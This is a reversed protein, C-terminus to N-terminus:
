VATPVINPIVSLKSNISAVSVVAGTYSFKATYGGTGADSVVQALMAFTDQRYVRVTASVYAGADYTSGEVKHTGSTGDPPTFAPAPLAPGLYVDVISGAGVVDTPNFMLLHVEGTNVVPLSFRGNAVAGQVLFEGTDARLAVATGATHDKYGGELTSPRTVSGGAVENLRALESVPLERDYMAFETVMGYHRKGGNAGVGTGVTDYSAHTYLLAGSLDLKFDIATNVGSAVIVNDIYVTVDGSASRTIVLPFHQGRPIKHAPITIDKTADHVDIRIVLDKNEKFNMIVGGGANAPKFKFVFDNELAVTSGAWATTTFPVSVGDTDMAVYAFLTFAGTTVGMASCNTIKYKVNTAGGFAPIGLRANSHISPTSGVQSITSTTYPVTGTGQRIKMKADAPVTSTDVHSLTNTTKYEWLLPDSLTVDPYAAVEKRHLVTRAKVLAPLTAQVVSVEKRLSEDVFVKINILDNAPDHAVRMRVTKASGVGLAETLASSSIVTHTGGNVVSVELESGDTRHSRLVCRVLVDSGVQVDNTASTTYSASPNLLLGVYFLHQPDIANGAPQMARDCVGVSVMTELINSTVTEIDGVKLLDGTAAVAGSSNLLSQYTPIAVTEAVGAGDNDSYGCHWTPTSQSLYTTLGVGTYNVPNLAQQIDKMTQKTVTLATASSLGESLYATVILGGRWNVLSILRSGEESTWGTVLGANTVSSYFNASSVDGGIFSSGSVTTVGQAATCLIADASAALGNHPYSTNINGVRMPYAEPKVGSPILGVMYDNDREFSIFATLKNKRYRSKVILPASSVSVGSRDAAITSSRQQLCANVPVALADVGITPKASPASLPDDMAWHDELTFGHKVLIALIRQQLTLNAM